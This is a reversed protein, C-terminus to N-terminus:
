SIFQKLNCNVFEYGAVNKYCKASLTTETKYIILDFM